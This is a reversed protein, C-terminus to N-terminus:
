RKCNDFPLSAGNARHVAADGGCRRQRRIRDEQLRSMLTSSGTGDVRAGACWGCRPFGCDIRTAALAAAQRRPAASSLTTPSQCTYSNRSPRTGARYPRPVCWEQSLQAYTRHTPGPKARGRVSGGTPTSAPAACCQARRSKNIRRPPSPPSEGRTTHRMWALVRPALTHELLTTSAASAAHLALRRAGRRSYKVGVGHVGQHEVHRARCVHRSSAIALGVGPGPHEHLRQAGRRPVLTPAAGATSGSNVERGTGVSCPM